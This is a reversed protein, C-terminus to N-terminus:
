LPSSLYDNAYLLANGICEAMNKVMYLRTNQLLASGPKGSQNVIGTISIDGIAPLKKNVGKGPFLHTNSLTILGIDKTMGLSADVAIVFPNNYETYINNITERINLAHVPYQLTGAVSYDFGGDFLFDGVLPGLADGTARDTGICVVIIERGETDMEYVMNLISNGLEIYANEKSPNFYETRRKLVNKILNM